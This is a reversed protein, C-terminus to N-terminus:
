TERPGILHSKARTTQMMKLRWNIGGNINLYFQMSTLDDIADRFNVLMCLSDYKLEELMFNIQLLSVMHLSLMRKSLQVQLKEILLILWEFLIVILYLCYCNWRILICVQVDWDEKWGACSYSIWRSSLCLFKNYDSTKKNKM